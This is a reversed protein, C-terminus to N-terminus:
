STGGMEYFHGRRDEGPENDEDPFVDVQEISADLIEWGLTQYDTTLKLFERAADVSSGTVKIVDRETVPSPSAKYFTCRIYFNEM